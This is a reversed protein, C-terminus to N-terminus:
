HLPRDHAIGWRVSTHNRIYWGGTSPRWVAIQTTAGGAFQAPVPVDGRVGGWSVGHHGRVYWGGNSPRYVAVQTAGGSYQGQVPVDGHVGWRVTSHNRVYWGGNSPRYIAIEATRGGSYAGPVPQDGRRGYQVAGIGRVWWTGTSPRFVAIDTRGDGNYDAPVAIDGPQGWRVSGAKGWFFWQGTSPRYLAPTSAAAGNYHGPVPKDTAAGWHIPSRDAFYWMGSSPRYVTASAAGRGTFDTDVPLRTITAPRSAVSLGSSSGVFDVTVWITSGVTVVGIGAYNYRGLMNYRHPASAIFANNLSSVSQGAGINEGLNTWNPAARPIQVGVNPNHNLSATAAMHGAWPRAINTLATSMRLPAFHHSARYSNLNDLFQWEMTPNLTAASASPAVAGLLGASIALVLTAILSWRGPRRLRRVSEEAASPRATDSLEEPM